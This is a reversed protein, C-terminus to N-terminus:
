QAVKPLVVVVEIEQGVIKSAVIAIHLAYHPRLLRRGKEM